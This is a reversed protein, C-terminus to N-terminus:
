LPARTSRTKLDRGQEIPSRHAPLDSRTRSDYWFPIRLKVAMRVLEALSEAQMKRMVQSRHIQLTVESIGLVSAAQKNLLGGVILPLVERERPTLRVLRERLTALEARRQRLKRDHALAALVAELLATTDIPKTLLEIAGAKMVRVASPVDIHTCTFVVPPCADGAMRCQWDLGYEHPLQLDLVLCSSAEAPTHELYEAVSDFAIVTIKLTALRASIEERAEPDGDVLYVVDPRSSAASSNFPPLAANGPFSRVVDRVDIRHSIAQM